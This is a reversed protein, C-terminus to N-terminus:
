ETNLHKAKNAVLSGRRQVYIYLLYSRSVILQSCTCTRCGEDAKVFQINIDRNAAIRFCNSLSKLWSFQNIMAVTSSLLYIEHWPNTILVIDSDAALLKWRDDRHVHQVEEPLCVAACKALKVSSRHHRWHRWLVNMSGSLIDLYEQKNLVVFGLATNYFFFFFFTKVAHPSSIWPLMIKINVEWHHYSQCIKLTVHQQKNSKESPCTQPVTNETM